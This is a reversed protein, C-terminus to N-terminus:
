TTRRWYHRKCLIFQRSHPLMTDFWPSHPFSSKVGGNDRAILQCSARKLTQSLAVNGGFVKGIGGGSMENLNKEDGRSERKCM